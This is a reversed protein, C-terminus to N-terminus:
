KVFKLTGKDTALFYIGSKLSSTSVENSLEGKLITRGTLDYIKYNGVINNNLIIADKSSNYFATTLKNYRDTSLIIEEEIEVVYNVYAEPVNDGVVQLIWLYGNVFDTTQAVPLTNNPISVSITASGDTFDTATLTKLETTMDSGWGLPDVGFGVRSFRVYIESGSTEEDYSNIVISINESNTNNFIHNGVGGWGYGAFREGGVGSDYTTGGNVTVNFHTQANLNTSLMLGLMMFLLTIKKM